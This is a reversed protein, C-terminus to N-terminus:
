SRGIGAKTKGRGQVALAGLFVCMCMSISSFVQFRFIALFSVQLKEIQTQITHMDGTVDSVSDLKERM